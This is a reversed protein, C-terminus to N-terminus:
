STSEDPIGMVSGVASYRVPRVLRQRSHGTGTAKAPRSESVGSGEGHGEVAKDGLEQAAM